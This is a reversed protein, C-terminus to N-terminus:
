LSFCLFALDTKDYVLEQFRGEGVSNGGEGLVVEAAEVVVTVRISTTVM